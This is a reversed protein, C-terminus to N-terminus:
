HSFLLNSELRRLPAHLLRGQLKAAALVLYLLAGIQIPARKCVMFGPNGSRVQGCSGSCLSLNRLTSGSRIADGGACTVHALFTRCRTFGHEPAYSFHVKRTM